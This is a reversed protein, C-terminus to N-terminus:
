ASPAAPQTPATETTATETTTSPTAEAAEATAKRLQMRMLEDNVTQMEHWKRIGYRLAKASSLPSWLLVLLLAVIHPLLWPTRSSLVASRYKVNNKQEYDPLM